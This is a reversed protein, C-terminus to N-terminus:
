SRIGSADNGGGHNTHELFDILGACGIGDHNRGCRWRCGKHWDKSKNACHDSCYTEIADPGKPRISLDNLADM